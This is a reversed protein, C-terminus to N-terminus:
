LTYCFKSNSDVKKERKRPIKEYYNKGNVGCRDM